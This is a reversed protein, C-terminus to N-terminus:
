KASPDARHAAPLSVIAGTLEVDDLHGMVQDSVAHLHSQHNHHTWKGAAGEVYFGVLKVNAVAGDYRWPKPGDPTAIPCAGAIVHVQLRAAKGVVTVPTPTTLDRGQARLLEAIRQELQAYSGCPGIAFAQWDRVDEAILLTARDAPTATRVTANGDQATAVLVKGDLITVEGALEALAGVGITEKTGFQALDVRGEDHGQRLVERMSGFSRLGVPQSQCAAALVASLLLWTPLGRV